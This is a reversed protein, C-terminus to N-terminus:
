QVSSIIDIFDDHLYAMNDEKGILQFVYYKDDIKLTATFYTTLEDQYEYKSGNAVQMYGPFNVSKPVTKKISVSLNELTSSRKSIYMDHVADLLEIEDEFAYQAELAEDNTFVEVSFYLGLEEIVKVEADDQIVFYNDYTEYFLDSLEFNIGDFHVRSLNPFDM